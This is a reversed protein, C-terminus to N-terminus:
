RTQYSSIKFEFGASSTISSSEPKRRLAIMTEVDEITGPTQLVAKFVVDRLRFGNVTSSSDVLAKVAEIAMVLHAAGPYIM